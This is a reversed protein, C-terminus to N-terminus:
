AKHRELDGNERYKHKFVWMCRIVNVGDPRPVLDWTHQKTFADHEEHMATNWNHDLM